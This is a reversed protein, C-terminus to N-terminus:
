GEKALQDVAAQAEAYTKRAADIQEKSDPATGEAEASYAEASVRLAREARDYVDRVAIPVDLTRWKDMLKRFAGAKAQADLVTQAFLAEGEKMIAAMERAVSPVSATGPSSATVSAPASHMRLDSSQTSGEIRLIDSKLIRLIGGFRMFEIADGADRWAEVQVTGGGVLHIVDARAPGLLGVAL